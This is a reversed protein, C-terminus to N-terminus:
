QHVIQVTVSCKSLSHTPRSFTVTLGVCIDKIHQKVCILSCRCPCVWKILSNASRKAVSYYMFCVTVQSLDSIRRWRCFDTVHLEGNMRRDRNPTFLDQICLYIDAHVSLPLGGVRMLYDTNGRKQVKASWQPSYTNFTLVRFYGSAIVEVKVIYCTYSYLNHM